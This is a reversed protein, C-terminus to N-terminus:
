ELPLWIPIMGGDLVVGAGLNPHFKNNKEYHFAYAEPDILCGVNMAWINKDNTKVHCLGATSHLHGFAVSTTGIEAANRYPTKGSCDLGHKVIFPKKSAKVMWQDAWQWGPPAELVEQYARIMQSPIEALAAKKAWRMGHNSVALKKKPFYVSWERFRERALKIESTATHHGDPDKPYMGGHLEDVEDGVNFVNSDPIKFHKKLYICFKLANQNEFPIQLDSIILYNEGAM